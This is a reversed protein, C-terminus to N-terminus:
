LSDEGFMVNFIRSIRMADKAAETRDLLKKEMQSVHMSWDYQAADLSSMIRPVQEIILTSKFKEETGSPPEMFSLEELARQVQVLAPIQDLLTDNMFRRIRLLVEKKHTTYPYRKRCEPDCLLKHLCFWTHAEPTTVHLADDGAVDVFEGNRFVQSSEPGRRRWPQLLLVEALGVPLDSKVLVTNSASLPLADLRDIIFWLISICGMGRLLIGQQLQKELVDLGTERNLQESTPPPQVENINRVSFLRSVQRWCYDILELVDDGFAVVTEEYYCICELFNVLVAEYQCYMYAATPNGAIAEKVPPQVRHRWVEMALLGHLVDSLKDYEVLFTRVFDDCKNVANAHTCMNLIEMAERQEKWADSGVASVPFCRIQRILVEAEAPTLVSRSFQM